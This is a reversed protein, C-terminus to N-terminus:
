EVGTMKNAEAIQAKQLDALRKEESKVYAIKKNAWDLGHKQFENMNNGFEKRIGLPLDKWTQETQKLIELASPLDKIDMLEDAVKHTMQNMAQATLKMDGRYTKYVDYITCDKNNEDIYQQLNIEEGNRKITANDSFNKIARRTKNWANFPTQTAKDFIEITDNKNEM